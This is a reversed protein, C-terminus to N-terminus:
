ARSTAGRSPVLPAELHHAGEADQEISVVIWRDGRRALTWYEAVSVIDASAGDKNIIAGGSRRRLRADRGRPPRHRPGGDDDERNVLGVYEVEPGTRVEVINHWGKKDFDDLRREWEVM